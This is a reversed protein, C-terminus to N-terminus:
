ACHDSDDSFLDSQHKSIAGGLIGRDWLFTEMIGELHGQQRINAMRVIECVHHGFWERTDGTESSSCAGICLCWLLGNWYDENSAMADMHEQIRQRLRKVTITPLRCQPNSQRLVLHTYVRAALLITHGQSTQLGDAITNAIDYDAVNTLTRVDTASVHKDKQGDQAQRIISFIHRITTSDPSTEYKELHALNSPDAVTITKPTLSVTDLDHILNLLPRTNLAASVQLDSRFTNTAIQM